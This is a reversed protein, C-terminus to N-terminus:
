FVLAQHHAKIVDRLQDADLPTVGDVLEDPKLGRQELSSAEVYLTEIDYLPLSALTSEISKADIRGPSQGPLLQWVADDMFLVSVPQEFAAAALAVDYGGRTLGRGYPGRRFVLLLSKGNVPGEAM